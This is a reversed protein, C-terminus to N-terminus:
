ASVFGGDIAIIQGTLYRAAYSSLYMVLAACEEGSGLCNIMQEENLKLMKGSVASSGFTSNAYAAFVGYEKQGRPSSVVGTRYILDAALVLATIVDKGETNGSYEMSALLAALCSLGPHTASKAYYDDFDLCHVTAGNAFAAQVAPLKGGYGVVSAEEKGGQEKVFAVMEHCKNGLTSGAMLTGVADMISYKGILVEKESLNDFETAAIRKAFKVSADM